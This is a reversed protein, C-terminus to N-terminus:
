ALWDSSARPSLTDAAATLLASRFGHPQDIAKGAPPREAEPSKRKVGQCEPLLPKTGAQRLVALKVRTQPELSRCKAPHPYPPLLMM